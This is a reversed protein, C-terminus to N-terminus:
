GQSFASALADKMDASTLAGSFETTHSDLGHSITMNLEYMTKGIERMKYDPVSEDMMPYDGSWPIQSPGVSIMKDFLLEAMESRTNKKNAEAGTLTRIGKYGWKGIERAGEYGAMVTDMGTAVGMLIAGAGSAATIQGVLKLGSSIIGVSGTVVSEAAHWASKWMKKQSKEMVRYQAMLELAEMAHMKKKYEQQGARDAYRGSHKEERMKSIRSTVDAEAGAYASANKSPKKQGNPGYNIAAINNDRSVVELLNRRKDDMRKADSRAFIGSHKTDQQLEATTKSSSASKDDFGLDYNQADAIRGTAAYKKRKREMENWLRGREKKSDSWHTIASAFEMGDVAVGFIGAAMKVIPGLFPVVNIFPSIVGVVSDVVGRIKGLLGRINKWHEQKGEGAAKDRNVKGVAKFLEYGGIILNVASMAVGAWDGPETKGIEKNMQATGGKRIKTITEASEVGAARFSKECGSVMGLTGDAITSVTSWVTNSTEAVEGAKEKKANGKKANTRTDAEAKRAEEEPTLTPTAPPPSGPAGPAAPAAKANIEDDGKLMDARQIVKGLNPSEAKVTEMDKHAKVYKSGKKDALEWIADMHPKMEQLEDREATIRAGKDTGESGTISVPAAMTEQYIKDIGPKQRQLEDYKAGMTHSANSTTIETAMDTFRQMYAKVAKYPADSVKSANMLQAGTDTKPKSAQLASAVGGAAGTASKLGTKGTDAKSVGDSSATALQSMVSPAKPVTTKVAQTHSPPLGGKEPSVNTKATPASAKAPATNGKNKKKGFGFFSMLGM